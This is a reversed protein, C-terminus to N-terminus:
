EAFLLDFDEPRVINNSVSDGEEFIGQFFLSQFYDPTYESRPQQLIPTVPAAAPFAAAPITKPPPFQMTSLKGKEVFREGRQNAVISIGFYLFIVLCFLAFCLMNPKQNIALLSLFKALISIRYLLDSTRVHLRPPYIIIPPVNVHRYAPSCLRQRHCCFWRFLLSCKQFHQSKYHPLVPQVDQLLSNGTIPTVSFLEKWLFRLCLFGKM